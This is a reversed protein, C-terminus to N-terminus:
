PAPHLDRFLANRRRLIERPPEGVDSVPESLLANLLNLADAKQGRAALLDAKWVRGVVSDPKSALLADIQAEAGTVDGTASLYRARATREEFAALDAINIINGRAARLAPAARQALFYPARVNLAFM